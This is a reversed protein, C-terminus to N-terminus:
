ESKKPAKPVIVLKDLKKAFPDLVLEIPCHDSGMVKTHIVSEKVMSM